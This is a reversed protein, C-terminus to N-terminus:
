LIGAKEGWLPLFSEMQRESEGIMLTCHWGTEPCGRERKLSGSDEWCRCHNTITGEEGEGHRAGNM